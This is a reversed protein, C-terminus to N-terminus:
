YLEIFEYSNGVWDLFRVFDNFSIVASATNINPHFSIKDAKRLNKDMFLHVHNEKDNILAFPSVSGASVGLYKDMRKQSAFSIKGQKLRKELDHIDLKQNSELIVLYHLNGKHNRFFLNKCHTSDIEKWVEMAIEITPLPKHEYLEYPIKLAELVELVENKM